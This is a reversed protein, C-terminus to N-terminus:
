EALRIIAADILALYLCFTYFADNTTFGFKRYRETVIKVENPNLKDKFLWDYILRELTTSNDIFGKYFNMPFIYTMGEYTAEQHSVYGEHHLESPTKMDILDKYYYADYRPRPLLTALKSNAEKDKEVNDTLILYNMGMLGNMDSDFMGLIKQKVVFTPCLDSLDLTNDSNIIKYWISRYNNDLRPYLQYARVGDEDVSIKSKLYEVVYPDYIKDPRVFTQISKDFFFNILDQAISKRLQRLKKLVFWSDYTLLTYESSGFYSRKDFVMTTLSNSNLHNYLEKSIKTYTSFSVTYSREQRYTIPKIDNIRFIHINNNDIELYFLDGIYPELGPYMIAQGSILFTNDEERFESELSSVLKMELNLIRTLDKHVADEKDILEASMSRTDINPHNRHFYTVQM